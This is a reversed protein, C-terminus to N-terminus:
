ITNLLKTEFLVNLIRIDIVHVILGIEGEVHGVKAIQGAEDVFLLRVTQAENEDEIRCDVHFLRIVGRVFTGHLLTNVDSPVVVSELWVRVTRCARAVTLVEIVDHETIYYAKLVLLVLM